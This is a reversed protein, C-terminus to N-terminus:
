SGPGPEGVGHRHQMTLRRNVPRGGTPTAAEVITTLATAQSGTASSESGARIGSRLAEADSTASPAPPM